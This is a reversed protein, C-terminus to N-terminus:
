EAQKLLMEYTYIPVKYLNSSSYLLFYCDKFCTNAYHPVQAILEQERNLVYAKNSCKLITYIQDIGEEIQTVQEELDKYVSVLEMTDVGYVEVTNNMYTIYLYKDTSDFNLYTINSVDLDISKEYEGGKEVSYISLTNDLVSSKAYYNLHHAMAFISSQDYVNDNELELVLTGDEINYIEIGKYTRITVKTNDASFGLNEIVNNKFEFSSLKEVTNGDLITIGSYEMVAIKKDDDGLFTANEYLTNISTSAILKGKVLDYLYLLYESSNNTTGIIIAKTEDENIKSDVFYSNILYDKMSFISEVQNGKAYQYIVVYDSKYELGAIYNKGWFIDKINNSTSQFRGENILDIQRTPVVVHLEGDRTFVGTYDQSDLIKVNIIEDNLTVEGNNAGTVLDLSGIKDYTQYIVTPIDWETVLDFNEVYDGNLGYSWKIGSPSNLDFSYIFSNASSGFINTKDEVYEYCSVVLNNGKFLIKGVSEYKFTYEHLKEGTAVAYVIIKSDEKETDNPIASIAVLTSDENFVAQHQFIMNAPEICNWLIKGNEGDYLTIGELINIALLYDGDQSPIVDDYNSGFSYLVQKSTIDYVQQSEKTQYIITENNIFNVQYDSLGSITFDTAVECLKTNAIPDWVSINNYVDVVMLKDKEPSVKMFSVQASQKLQHMPLINEDNEYVYLNETLAYQTEPTFPLDQNELNKPMVLLLEEIAGRRDGEELLRLAIDATNRANEKLAETYQISIEESQQAIKESQIRIEEKQKQIRLAMTTSIIGILLCVTSAILSATVIRKLKQERHRQKLDDYGCEFMPAALRLVESKILKLIEKKNKGRVDAALPEVSKQREIVTGDEQIDEITTFCLEDPFSDKPEGEMLVALVHERGHMEIFTQIEKKCWLSEILRPSCIVILFESNSLANTIPDALDSALPLEDRDRFVRSIKTKGNVKRDKVLNKPLRFSELQKHLNEAVYIDLETHRYSIFADYKTNELNM